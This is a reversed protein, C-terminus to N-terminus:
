VTAANDTEVPPVPNSTGNAPPQPPTSAQAAKAKAAREQAKAAFKEILIPDQAALFAADEPKPTGKFQRFLANSVRKGIDLKAEALGDTETSDFDPRAAHVAALMQSWSEDLALESVADVVSEAAATAAAPALTQLFARTLIAQIKERYMGRVYGDAVPVDVLQRAPLELELESESVARDPDIECSDSCDSQEDDQTYVKSDDEAWPGKFEACKRALGIASTKERFLVQPGFRRAVAGSNGHQAELQAPFDFVRPDDRYLTAHKRFSKKWCWRCNGEYGKLNLRFPQSRWFDNVMQKTIGRKVLPYTLRYKAAEASMRDFEDARIGIATDYMGNTWGLSRVYSTIPCTKLSRTCHPTLKNPIGYKAADALFLSGDRCATEFTVIRHTPAKRQGEHFVAELWVTGFGFERDCRDVFELTAENEQGTNAFVVVIEDYRREQLLLRTM